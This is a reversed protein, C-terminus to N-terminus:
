NCVMGDYTSCSASCSSRTQVGYRVYNDNAADYCLCNCKKEKADETPVPSQCMGGDSSNIKPHKFDQWDNYITWGAWGLIGGVAGAAAGVPGLGAGATAGDAVAAGFAVAGPVLLGSPDVYNVPDGDCYAYMNLGGDFRIPDKSIWRGVSPDYDRAGFHVLGTDADTLGGAFGFPQTSASGVEYTAIGWADYRVRQAIAGSVVNVLM